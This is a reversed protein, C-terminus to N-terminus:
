GVRRVWSRTLMVPRFGLKAYLRAPAGALAGLFVCSCGSARLEGAFAAIMGSAVGRRRHAPLTFLDEIMGAGGPAMALAGYAVPAGDAWALHFRYPEQKARYGAVIGESVAETLPGGARDEAEHNAHVLGALARWDAESEVPTLGARPQAAVEGALQMQIVLPTEAFGDLALRALFPQPTFPDTHVVRWPTHALQEEMARLVAEIEDATEATVADAHNADWVEPLALSRVIRAHATEVIEHGLGRQWRCADVIARASM